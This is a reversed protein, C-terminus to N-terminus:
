WDSDFIIVTDATELNLGLGGAKTSLLFVFDNSGEANFHEMSRKRADSGTSGDLRQFPYGKLVLYDTLIDLMMVFQSFILVRHSGEKLRVLLKDLLVMKGSHNIIGSLQEKKDTSVIEASPFLYPHNSAMRLKIAVNQLSVRDGDKNLGAFNKTYINKYYQLQLPSLEVRLIRETKQPLSKEVDKKLRRLMFQKLKEQLSEIQSTQDDSGVKLEFGEFEKFHSPMLFQILALLEKVTNQLPTGTILLRNATHFDKLAEHLMSGSNKLRHAEDVALYQWKISGLEAQDKLILEFTTILVNFKLCSTPDNDVHFEHERIKQRSSGSGNYVITNMEKAWQAFEKTWSSITSLPVVILFPGYVHM